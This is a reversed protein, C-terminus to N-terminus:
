SESKIRSSLLGTGLGLAAVMAFSWRLSAAQAIFGIVPPGMLFGLFSISSVAALAFGPSMAKSKGALSYVVPVVASVGFGVLLFGLTATYLNPFLVAIMLGAFIFVGSTQLIRKVGFRTVLRDAVFRGTAMTGTFAVYGVTTLAKPSEVVERFYVGSWDAMAGECVMCCFAILGLQLIYRDPKIFMPTSSESKGKDYPLTHKYVLLTLFVTIGVILFFHFIPPIGASVMLTGIAAGAFGALSWLGHFSAMISRGYMLEVGVAQTNMAINIMNGWVGFLFLVGILQLMTTALGLFILTTPYLLAGAIVIHRSGFRSVLWGSVPLSAMLGAPLALLVTGLAAEDLQLFNKIDPIRSAWSAFTLGAIFFFVSIALRYVRQGKLSISIEMKM